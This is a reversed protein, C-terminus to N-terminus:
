GPSELLPNWADFTFVQSCKKCTIRKWLHRADGRYSSKCQPCVCSFKLNLMDPPNAAELPGVMLDSPALQTLSARDISGAATSMVRQSQRVTVEEFLNRVYRANGFGATRQRYALNLLVSLRFLCTESVKFRSEECLKLFITALESVTYDDFDLFRTFRSKLGPNAGLFDDMLAPYGAVIVALRDRYDEMRKLLTNIAEAGFSDQGTKDVLTYAEDIFLVGDLASQIVEDAKIATQGLYGGVLRSRDTEVLKPTKLLEFGYLIKGIIRAVTTKGTGPNGKFV